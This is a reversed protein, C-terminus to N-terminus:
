CSLNVRARELRRNCNFKTWGVKDSATGGNPPVNVGVDAKRIGIGM